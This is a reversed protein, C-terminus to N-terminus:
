KKNTHIKISGSAIPQKFGNDYIVIENGDDEYWIKMRFTDPSGDGAWLMFMYSNGFPDLGGNITGEGKFQANTANQNVVLWDYSESHFNMGAAQFQFETIGTPVNAGKKFKSVFGFNAKGTLNLDPKYAGAPSDFWGGGTVFGADADYVVAMTCATDSLGVPDTVTLCVDYIGAASYTHTPTAGANLSSSGDGWDWDYTLIDGDPDSSASGDYSIQSDVAGLYSGNPNATPPNNVPTPTNTPPVPTFTNTPTPTNTPVIPTFTNTPTPTNTPVIPTFTNTPPPPTFTNTPVIPTFTLHIQQYSCVM